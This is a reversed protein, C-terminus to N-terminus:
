QLKEAGATGETRTGESLRVLEASEPKKLEFKEPPIPQNFSAALINIQLRYDEIPRHIQINTPYRIGGFDKYDSYNVDELRHDGEGFFQLRALDLTLRDFWIKRKLRLPGGSTARHALVDVVYYPHGSEEAEESFYDEDAADIAPVLLADSIHQPRLNELANKTPRHYGVDGVIFKQKSPIYLRFQKGDAAMDFIDTRVVPAQGIMRIMAPRELLIFGKVDHYQDIVGSYVSGATPTLDVTAKLTRIAASEANLRDVLENVTAVRPPPPVQSAVVHTTRRVACGPAILLIATLVLGGGVQRM